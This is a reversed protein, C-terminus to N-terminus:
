PEDQEYQQLGAELVARHAVGPTLGHAEALTHVRELQDPRVRHPTRALTPRDAEVQAAIATLPTRHATHPM